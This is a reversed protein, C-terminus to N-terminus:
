LYGQTWGDLKIEVHDVRWEGKSRTILFRRQFGNPDKTYILVKQKAPQETDVVTELSYGPPTSYNLVNPRGYSRPKSTCYRDIIAACRAMDQAQRDKADAESQPPTADSEAMRREWENMADFFSLLVRKAEEADDAGTVATGRGERALRRQTSEFERMQDPSFQEGANVKLGESAALSLLGEFTVATKAIRLISLKPIGVALPITKDSVATESVWLTKLAKHGHFHSLGEGTVRTRDLILFELKPLAALHELAVDTVQTGELWLRVLRQLPRLERVHEDNIPCDKFGLTVLTSQSGLFKMEEVTFSRREFDVNRPRKPLDDIM